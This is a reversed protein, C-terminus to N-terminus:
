CGMAGVLPVGLCTRRSDGESGRLFTFDPDAQLDHIHVTRGEISVRGATSGRDIPVIKDVLEQTVPGSLNGGSTPLLRFGGGEFRM